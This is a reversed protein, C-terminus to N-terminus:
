ADRYQNAPCIRPKGDKRLVWPGQTEQLATCQVLSRFVFLRFSFGPPGAAAMGRSVPPKIGHVKGGCEGYGQGRAAPPQATMASSAVLGEETCLVCASAISRARSSALLWLEDDVPFVAFDACTIGVAVVRKRRSSLDWMPLDPKSPPPQALRVVKYTSWAM